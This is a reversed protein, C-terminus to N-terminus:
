WVGCEFGHEVILLWCTFKGVHSRLTSCLFYACGREAPGSKGTMCMMLLLYTLIWQITDVVTICKHAPLSSIGVLHTLMFGVAWSTTTYSKICSFHRTDSCWFLVSSLSIKDSAACCRLFRIGFWGSCVVSKLTRKSSILEFCVSLSSVPLESSVEEECVYGLLMCCDSLQVSIPLELVSFTCLCSPHVGVVMKLGRSGETWIGQVNVFLGGLWDAGNVWYDNGIPIYVKGPAVSKNSRMHHESETNHAVIIDLFTWTKTQHM